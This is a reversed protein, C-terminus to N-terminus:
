TRGSGMAKAHYRAYILAKELMQVAFILKDIDSALGGDKRIVELLDGDEILSLKNLMEKTLEVIKEAKEKEGGSRSRCFLGFAYLGQEQLVSLAKTILTEAKKVDWGESVERAFWEGYQACLKDLNDM